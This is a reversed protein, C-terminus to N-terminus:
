NYKTDNRLDTIPCPISSILDIQYDNGSGCDKRYDGNTNVIDEFSSYFTYNRLRRVCM